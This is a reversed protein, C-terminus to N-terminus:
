AFVEGTRVLASLASEPDAMLAERRGQELIRGHSLVVVEEAAQVAHPGHAIIVATRGVLLRDLAADFPRRSAPDLRSSAEDLVVLGPDTILLRAFALLQSEGGSLGAAGKGLATDLGDPLSELWGGLGVERLAAEIRPDAVSEEFMAVNERVTADFIKVDQTVLGVSSRVSDIRLARSDVGDVLVRGSTPDAFRVLLKAITSKGSGTRGVLALRTGPQLTLSIDHLVEEGPRYSHSVSELALALGEASRGSPLRQTGDVVSSRVEMLVNVRQLAALSDELGRFQMVIVMLPLNLMMGYTVLAYASGLSMRGALFLTTGAALALVMSFSALGQAAAPWRVGLRASRRGAALLAASRLRLGSRAEAAGGNPRLDELGSLREEVFGLLKAGAQRQEAAAPLASGVLRRLLYVSGLVFPVYSLGIWWQEVFLAVGIAVLLLANSAVQLTMDSFYGALQGVDGDIRGILEGSAREEFFAGDLSLCHATLDARLENTAAWAVRSALYNGLVALVQGFLSVGLFVGALGILSGLRDRSQAANIFAGLIQPGLVTAATSLLLSVWLVAMASRHTTLYKRMM